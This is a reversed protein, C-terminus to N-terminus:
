EYIRVFDVLMETSEPDGGDPFYDLQITLHMDGPPLTKDDTSEFWKEGDLYGTIRGDVWEVAYNHWDTIDIKKRDFVQNNDKGYHLFFMVDDADSNTEAFDVEGGVPWNEASPWLILVPHYQEDGKPFKARVEWRGHTQGDDWAIGGTDGDSDGRIVLNGNEVTVKEPQRRGNGGHGEGNYPNSWGDGLGGDFEDREVLDWGFKEAAQTGENRAPKAPAPPAAPAPAPEAAPAPPAAPAEPVPPALPGPDVQPVEDDPDTVEPANVFQGSLEPAAVQDAGPAPVLTMATAAILMAAAGVALPALRRGISTSRLRARAAALDAPQEAAPADEDRDQEVESREGDAPDDDVAIPAPSVEETVRDIVATDARTDARTGAPQAPLPRVTTADDVPRFARVATADEVPWPAARPALAGPAPVQPAVRPLATTGATTGM